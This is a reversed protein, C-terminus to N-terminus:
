NVKIKFYENALSKVSKDNTNRCPGRENGLHLYGWRDIIYNDTQFVVPMTIKKGDYNTVIAKARYRKSVNPPSHNDEKWDIKGAFTDKIIEEIAKNKIEEKESEPLDGFLRNMHYDALENLTADEPEKPKPKQKLEEIKNDLNKEPIFTQPVKM